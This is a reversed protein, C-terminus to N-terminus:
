AAGLHVISAVKNNGNHHYLMHKQFFSFLCVIKLTTFILPFLNDRQFKYKNVINYILVPSSDVPPSLLIVQLICRVIYSHPLSFSM